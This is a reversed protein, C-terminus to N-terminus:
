NDCNAMFLQCCHFRPLYALCVMFDIFQAITKLM